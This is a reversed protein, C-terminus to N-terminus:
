SEREGRWFAYVHEPYRGQAVYSKFCELDWNCPWIDMCFTMLEDELGHKKAYRKVWGFKRRDCPQRSM